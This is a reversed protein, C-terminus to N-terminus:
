RLAEVTYGLARLQSILGEEGVLHGAGIVFLTSTDQMMSPMLRLWARNRGYILADEEEPLPDLDNHYKTSVVEELQAIDQRMYAASLIDIQETLMEINSLASLLVRAQRTLSQSDFLVHIQFEPSELGMVRKQMQRAQTQLWSDLQEEPNFDKVSRMALLINLQNFLFSPKIKSLLAIDMGMWQKVKESVMKYEEPTYLMQLTTDGPLIAARQMSQLMDPSQLDGLVIEGCVQNVEKLTPYLQPVSDVISLPALHHTGFLYSPQKLDAGSVRWLWQANASMAGVLLMVFLLIRKMGTFNIRERWMDADKWQNVRLFTSETRFFCFFHGVVCHGTM